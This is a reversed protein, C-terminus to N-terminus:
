ITELLQNLFFFSHPLTLGTELFRYILKERELLM